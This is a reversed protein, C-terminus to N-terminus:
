GHDEPKMDGSPNRPLALLYQADSLRAGASNNQQVVNFGMFKWVVKIKGEGRGRERWVYMM